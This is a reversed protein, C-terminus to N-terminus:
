NIIDRKVVRGGVKPLRQKFLNGTCRLADTNDGQVKLLVVTTFANHRREIFRFALTRLQIDADQDVPMTGLTATDAGCRGIRIGVPVATQRLLIGPNIDGNIAHRHIGTFRQAHQVIFAEDNVIGYKVATGAQVIDVQMLMFLIAVVTVLQDAIRPHCVNHQLPDVAVQNLPAANITKIAVLAGFARFDLVINTLETLLQTVGAVMELAIRIVLLQRYRRQHAKAFGAQEVLRDEMQHRAGLVLQRDTSGVKVQRCHQYAVDNLQQAFALLYLNDDSILGCVVEINRFVLRKLNDTRQRIEILDVQAAEQAAQLVINIGILKNNTEPFIRIVAIM